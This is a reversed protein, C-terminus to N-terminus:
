GTPELSPAGPRPLWLSDLFTLRKPSCGGWNLPVALWNGRAGRSSELDWGAAQTGLGDRAQM